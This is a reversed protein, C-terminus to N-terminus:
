KDIWMFMSEDRYRPPATLAAAARAWLNFDAKSGGPLYNLLEGREILNM